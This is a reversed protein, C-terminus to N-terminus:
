AGATEKITFYHIAIGESLGIHSREVTVPAGLRAEAFSRAAKEATDWDGSVVACSYGGYTHASWVEVVAGETPQKLARIAEPLGYETMGRQEALLAASELARRAASRAAVRVIRRTNDTLGGYMTTGDSVFRQDGLEKAIQDASKPEASM